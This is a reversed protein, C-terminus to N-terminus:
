WDVVENAILVGDLINRGGLFVFQAHDIVFPFLKKLRNALVKSLIKYTSNILSIPRYDQIGIPNDKKPVLTVFSRNLGGVLSSNVFFEKIFTIIDNQM